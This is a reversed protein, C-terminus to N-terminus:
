SQRLARMPDLGAARRAPLYAASLAVALLLGTAVAITVPDQPQVGYLRSALLRSAGYALGGGVILGAIVLAMTERLIMTVVRAARAGFAIRVAIESTRRAVGYSLLGYVGIAALSLAVSGFALALQATARDQAMLPAMQEEITAAHLIPLPRRRQVTQRVSAMLAVADVSTRILFTPSNASSASDRVPLYFRRQVDGRLDQTRANRAVGVVQYSAPNGDNPMTIRMGLPNRGSFFQKAFAENIVVPNLTSERDGEEIDRGLVIPVGLTAFYDPGAVDMASEGDNTGTPTYGEVTISSSSEGGSFIGLQSYSVHRVGPVQQIDSRLERLIAGRVASSSAFERLDVRVLLLQQAPFGLDARQLNDATRVLLGATVLLPLSLALQLTVLVRGSRSHGAAGIVGRSQVKLNAAVDNRTIQWAPLGGVLLATSLTAAIIFLIVPGELTFTMAFDTESKALLQTLAAHVVSAVFVAALGAIVALVLNETMVQQILRTRSAGLSLRVAMEASRAAGRALLLNALNACAVILLVSVGVLLITLSQSFSVRNSSAGRAASQVRLRQDLYDGRRDGSARAGYFAELGAVFIANAEAEAQRATVGPQLRGFVHLWMSKDPPVDHLRDRGPLLALQLRLPAWVDPQQGHTEGIFGRPAVGVITLSVGRISLTKGLLDPRSGLRQWYPYSIVVSPSHAGDDEASFFRGMAATVGLTEFFAGSVLRGKVMHEGRGDVRAQFETLTSQTAMLASFSRAQERLQEFEGYTLWSRVGNVRGTWAGSADPNSLIVLEHPNRVGPLPSHLLGNWLSFIATSGGIGLALSVIAVVSFAPSKRLGRFAFAVDKRVNEILAVGRADRCEEKRPEIAGMERRAAYRADELSSGSAVFDDVLRDLHYQLEEDLERDVQHGRLLSRVRLRVSNIWRM